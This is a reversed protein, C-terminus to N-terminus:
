YNSYSKQERISSGYKENIANKLAFRKDNYQYVSRAAEIFAADFEKKAEKERLFDEIEWLQTNIEILPELLSDVNQLKITALGMLAQLEEVVFHKKDQDFVKVEKIMLISIKDILEGISIPCTIKM